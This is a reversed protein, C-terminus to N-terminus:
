DNESGGTKNSGGSEEFEKLKELVAAQIELFQHLQKNRDFRVKVPVKPNNPYVMWMECQPYRNPESSAGPCILVAEANGASGRRLFIDTEEFVGNILEQESHPRVFHEFGGFDALQKAPPRIQGIPAEGIKYDHFIYEIREKHPKSCDGGGILISVRDAFRDRSNQMSEGSMSPWHASLLDLPQAGDTDTPTLFYSNPIQMETGCYIRRKSKEEAGFMGSQVDCSTVAVGCFVALLIGCGRWLQERFRRIMSSHVVQAEMSNQAPSKRERIDMRKTGYRRYPTAAFANQTPRIVCLWEVTELNRAAFTLLDLALLTAM